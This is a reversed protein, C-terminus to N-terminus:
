YADVKVTCEDDRKIMLSSVKNCKAGVVQVREVQSNKLFAQM